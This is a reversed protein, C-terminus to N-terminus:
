TAGCHKTNDHQDLDPMSRQGLLGCVDSFLDHRRSKLLASLTLECTRERRWNGVQTWGPSMPSLNCRLRRPPLGVEAKNEFM